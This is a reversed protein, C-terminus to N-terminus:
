AASTSCTHTFSTTAGRALAASLSRLYAAGRRPMPTRIIGFGLDRLEEEYDGPEDGHVVFDM